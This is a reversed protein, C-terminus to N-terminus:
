HGRAAVSVLSCSATAREARINLAEPVVSPDLPKLHFGRCGAEIIRVRSRDDDYASMAIISCRELGPLSRIREAVDCGDADPLVIDIFAVDPRWTAAVSVADEGTLVAKAEHGLERCLLVLMDALDRSDDVVLVRKPTRTIVTFPATTM